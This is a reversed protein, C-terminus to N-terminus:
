RSVQWVHWPWDDCHTVHLVRSIWTVMMIYCQVGAPWWTLEDYSSIPCINATVSLMARLIEGYYRQQSIIELSKEWPKRRQDHNNGSQDYFLHRHILGVNKRPPVLILYPCSKFNGCCHYNEHHSNQIKQETTEITNFTDSSDLIQKRVQVCEVKSM